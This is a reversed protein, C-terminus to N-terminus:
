KRWFSGHVGNGNYIVGESRVKGTCEWSWYMDGTGKLGIGYLGEQGTCVVGRGGVGRRLCEKGRLVSMGCGEFALVRVM